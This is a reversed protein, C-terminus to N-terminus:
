SRTRWTLLLVLDDISTQDLYLTLPGIPPPLPGWGPPGAAPAEGTGLTGYLLGGIAPDPKMEVLRAGAAADGVAVDAVIVSTADTRALLTVDTLAAPGAAGAFFPYHERRLDLTLAARPADATGPGAHGHRFRAWDSPFEHRLSLMRTTGAAGGVAIRERLHASAAQRLQEGGDRATYHVHLVVDTITDYDFPRPDTALDLQWEGAVGRYEFPLLREDRLNAEFLGSDNSGASTVIAESAGLQHVFRGDGDPNEPYGGNLAPTTRIRSRLLRATCAVGTYPGTVCPVSVAVSRIRRFYHGPTDLDFLEEPLSFTARGTARLTALARPDLQLLSVNKTLEYERRNQDLHALEMRRLDLHLREGALLGETGALYSPQVFTLNPDGLENRLAREAKRATELALEYARNYLGRVERRLLAYYATTTTKDGTREGALFREVEEARTIQERHNTLGREAM